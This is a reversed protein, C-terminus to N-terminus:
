RTPAWRGEAHSHRLILNKSDLILTILRASVFATISLLDLLRELEHVKDMIGLRVTDVGQQVEHLRGFVVVMEDRFHETPFLAIHTPLFKHM